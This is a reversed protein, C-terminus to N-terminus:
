TGEGNIARALTINSRAGAQNVFGPLHDLHDITNTFAAVLRAAYLPERRAFEIEESETSGRPPYPIPGSGDYMDADGAWERLTALAARLDRLATAQAARRLDDPATM